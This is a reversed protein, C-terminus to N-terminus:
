YNSFCVLYNSQKNTQKKILEFQYDESLDQTEPEYAVQNERKNEDQLSDLEIESASTSPTSTTSDM